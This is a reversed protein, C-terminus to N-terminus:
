MGGFKKGQERAVVSDKMELNQWALFTRYISNYLLYSQLILKKKKAWYLGRSILWTTVYIM